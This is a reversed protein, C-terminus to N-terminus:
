GALSANIQQEKAKLDALLKDFGNENIVRNFQTRYNAIISINDVTVDYVKWGGNKQELLYNVAIPNKGTQVINTFVQAYGPSLPAERIFQVKQGSYENIKSSYASEIFTKFVQTFNARQDPSLQKWHYGLASKSMETFDFNPELLQRLQASRQAVPTQKDSLVHLAQTVFQRTADLAGTDAHLPVALSIALSFAALTLLCRSSLVPHTRIRV